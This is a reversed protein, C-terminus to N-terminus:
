RTLAGTRWHALADLADLAAFQVRTELSGAVPAGASLAPIFRITDHTRIDIDYAPEERTSRARYHTQGLAQQACHWTAV